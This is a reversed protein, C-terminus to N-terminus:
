NMKTITLSSNTYGAISTNLLIPTAAMNRLTFSDGPILTMFFSGSLQGAATNLFQSGPALNTNIFVGFQPAASVNLIYDVRYTGAYTATIAGSVNTFGSLITNTWIVIGGPNVVQPTTNYLWGYTSAAVPALQKWSPAAPTGDNYYLGPTNNTQWLLLGTAPLTIGDRESQLMRPVLLGGQTSKIDLQASNDPLSGDHNIAVNQAQTGAAFLLIVLTLIYKM